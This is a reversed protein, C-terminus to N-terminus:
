RREEEYRRDDRRDNYRDDRRDNFQDDSHHNHHKKWNSRHQGRVYHGHIWHHGHGYHGPMWIMEWDSDYYTAGHYYPRDGLEITIGANAAAPVLAGALVVAAILLKHKIM